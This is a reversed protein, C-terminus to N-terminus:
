LAMQSGIGYTSFSLGTTAYTMGYNTYITVFPTYIRLSHQDSTTGRLPDPQTRGTPRRHRATLTRASCNTFIQCLPRHRLSAACTTWLQVPLTTLVPM